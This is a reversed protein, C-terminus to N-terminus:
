GGFTFAYAKLGPAAPTIRVTHTGVKADVLNYLDAANVRVTKPSQDDVQLTVDIPGGNATAMVLNVQGADYRLVLSARPGASEVYQPAVKWPGILAHDNTQLAGPASFTHVGDVLEQPSVFREAGRESGNYTEPTIGVPGDTGGEHGRV